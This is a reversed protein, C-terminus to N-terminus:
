QVEREKVQVTDWNTYDQVSGHLVTHVRYKMSSAYDSLSLPFNLLQAGLVSLHAALQLM